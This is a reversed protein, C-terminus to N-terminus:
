PDGPAPIGARGLPPHAKEVIDYTKRAIDNIEALAEEHEKQAAEFKEIREVIAANPPIVKGLMSLATTVGGGSVLASLVVIFLRERLKSAPVSSLKRALAVVDIQPEDDVDKPKSLLSEDIGDHNDVM